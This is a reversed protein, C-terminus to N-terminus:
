LTYVSVSQYLCRYFYITTTTENQQMHAFYKDAKNGKKVCIATHILHLNFSLTAIKCNKKRERLVLTADLLISPLPDLIAFFLVGENM